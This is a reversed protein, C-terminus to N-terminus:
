SAIHCHRPIIEFTVLQISAHFHTLSCTKGLEPMRHGFSGTDLRHDPQVRRSGNAGLIQLELIIFILFKFTSDVVFIEQRVKGLAQFGIDTFQHCGAVELTSLRPNYNALALLTSDTLEGCKSVCLQRLKPCRMAINRISADTITQNFTILKIKICTNLKTDLNMLNRAHAKLYKRYPNFAENLSVDCSHLNM